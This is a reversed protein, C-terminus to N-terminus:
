SYNVAILNGLSYTLTKVLEIGGPTAGSLVVTHLLGADYTFTKNVGSVYSVSQLDGDISYSYDADAASLNKNVTEFSEAVGTVTGGTNGSSVVVSTKTISNAPAPPSVLEEGDDFGLVLRDKKDWAISVLSRDPDPELRDKHKFYDRPQNEQEVAEQSTKTSKLALIAALHAPVQKVQVQKKVVVKTQTNPSSENETKVEVKNKM